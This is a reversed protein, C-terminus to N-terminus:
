NGCCDLYVNDVTPCCDGALQRCSTHASCARAANNRYSRFEELKEQHDCCDLEVNDNTPCCNDALTNCASHASCSRNCCDLFVGDATPCCAGEVGMALCVPNSSCQASSDEQLMREFEATSGRITEAGALGIVMSTVVFKLVKM